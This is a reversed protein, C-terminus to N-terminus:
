PFFFKRTKPDDRLRAIANHTRSKVTGLPVDLMQAIEELTFGDVFRLSIVEQHERSLNKLLGTISSPEHTSEDVPEALTEDSVWRETKRKLDLTTHKIVPYLFTTFKATLTLGSGPPPFKRLVYSFTEQLVDLALDNDAGFRSAVKLVYSKHRQYLTDFAKRAEAASGNNCSEM